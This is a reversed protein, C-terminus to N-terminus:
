GCYEVVIKYIDKLQYGTGKSIFKNMGSALAQEEYQKTTRGSVGIIPTPTMNNEKEYKRIERSVELGTLFPFEIDLFIISYKQKKFMELAELGDSATFVNHGEKNWFMKFMKRAIPDDDGMLINLTKGALTKVPQAPEAPKEPETPVPEPQPAAVPEPPPTQPKTTEVPKIPPPTHVPLPAPEKPIPQQKPFQEPIEYKPVACQGDEVIEGPVSITIKENTMVIDGGVSQLLSKCIFFLAVNDDIRTNYPAKHNFIANATDYIDKLLFFKNNDEFIEMYLLGVNADHAATVSMDFALPLFINHLANCVKRLHDLDANFCTTGAEKIVVRDGELHLENSILKKVEYLYVNRPSFSLQDLQLKAINLSETWLNETSGNSSKRALKLLDAIKKAFEEKLVDIQKHISSMDVPSGNPSSITIYQKLVQLHLQDEFRLRDVEDLRRKYIAELNRRAEM